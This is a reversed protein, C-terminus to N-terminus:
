LPQDTIATIGSQGYPRFLHRRRKVPESGRVWGAIVHALLL